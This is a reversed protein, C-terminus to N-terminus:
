SSTIVKQFIQMADDDLTYELPFEDFTYLIGKPGNVGKKRKKGKNHLTKDTAIRINGGVDYYLVVFPIDLIRMRDFGKVTSESILPGGTCAEGIENFTMKSSGTVAIGLTEVIKTKGGNSVSRIEIMDPNLVDEGSDNVIKLFTLETNNSKQALRGKVWWELTIPEIQTGKIEAISPKSSKTSLGSKRMDARSASEELWESMRHGPAQKSKEKFQKGFESVKIQKVM